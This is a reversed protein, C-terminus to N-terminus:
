LVGRLDTYDITGETLSVDRIQRFKVGVKSGIGAQGYLEQSQYFHDLTCYDHNEFKQPLQIVKSKGFIM